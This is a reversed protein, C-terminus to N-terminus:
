LRSNEYRGCPGVIRSCRGCMSVACKKRQTADSLSERATHLGQLLDTQVDAFALNEADDTTATGAFAGQQTRQVLQFAGAFAIDVEFPAVQQRQLGSLQTLHPPADAHDELM